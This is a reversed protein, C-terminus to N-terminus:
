WSIGNITLYGDLNDVLLSAVEVTPIVGVVSDISAPTPATITIDDTTPKAKNGPKDGAAFSIKNPPPITEGRDSVAPPEAKRQSEALRKQATAMKVGGARDAALDHSLSDAARLADEVAAEAKPTPPSTTTTQGRAM